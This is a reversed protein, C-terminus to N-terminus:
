PCVDPSPADGRLLREDVERDLENLFEDTFEVVEGRKVQEEATIMKSRLWDVRRDRADLLRLAERVVTESDSYLGSEVKQRVLVELQPPLTVTM